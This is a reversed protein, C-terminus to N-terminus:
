DVMYFMGANLDPYNKKLYEYQAEAMKTRRGGQGLTGHLELRRSQWRSSKRLTAGGIEEATKERMGNVYIVCSDFNASGGDDVDAFQQAHKTAEQIARSIREVDHKM